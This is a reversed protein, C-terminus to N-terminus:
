AIQKFHSWQKHLQSMFDVFRPFDAFLTSTRTGRSIHTAPSAMM